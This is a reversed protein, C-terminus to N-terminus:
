KTFGALTVRVGVIAGNVLDRELKCTFQCGEALAVAAIMPGIQSSRAYGELLVSDGVSRMALDRLRGTVGNARHQQWAKRRGRALAESDDSCRDYEEETLLDICVHDPPIQYKM